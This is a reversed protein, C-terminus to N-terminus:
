QENSMGKGETDCKSLTEESNVIRHYVENLCKVFRHPQPIASQDAILTFTIHDVYSMIGCSVPTHTPNTGNFLNEVLADPGSLLADKPGMLNSLTFTCKSATFPCLFMEVFRLGFLFNGIKLILATILPTPGTKLKIFLKHITDLRKTFDMEGCPLRIPVTAIDNEEVHDGDAYQKAFHNWKSQSQSNVLSRMNFVTFFRLDLREGYKKTIEAYRQLDGDCVVELLYRHVSECFISLVFDNVTIKSPNPGIKSKRSDNTKMTIENCQKKGM